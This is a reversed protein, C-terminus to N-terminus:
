TPLRGRQPYEAQQANKRQIHWVTHCIKQKYDTSSISSTLLRKGNGETGECFTGLFYMSTHSINEKVKSVTSIVSNNRGSHRQTNSVKNVKIM